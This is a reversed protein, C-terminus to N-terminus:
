HVPNINVDVHRRYTEPLQARFRALEVRSCHPGINNPGRGDLGPTEPISLNVGVGSHAVFLDLLEALEIRGAFHEQLLCHVFEAEAGASVVFDALKGACYGIQRAYPFDGGFM